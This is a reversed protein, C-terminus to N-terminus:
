KVVPMITKGFPMVSISLDGGRTARIRDLAEDVSAVKTVRLKGAMEDTLASVVYTPREIVMRLNRLAMYGSLTFGQRLGDAIAEVSPYDLWRDFDPDGIGDRCESVLVVAGGENVVAMGASLGKASQYISIDKPYGGCSVIVVDSKHDVDVAFIQRLRLCGNRFALNWDGGVLEVVRSDQDVITNLLFTPKVMAAIEEMDESVPNEDLKGRGCNPNMIDGDVSGLAYSHNRTITEYSCIGPCIAKRGGGFGALAHFDIGGTLIVKDAEAVRRSIHVPTGRSTTGLFTFAGEQRCDHDVVAFRKVYDEGVIRAREAPTQGRHTGTAIIVTIDSERIGFDTLKDLLFPVLLDCRAPLRTVDSAIVVVRDGARILERLPPAGVPNAIASELGAQVDDLPRPLPAQIVQDLNRRPVRCPIYGSGYKLLFEAHFGDESFNEEM